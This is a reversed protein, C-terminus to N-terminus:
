PAVAAALDESWAGLLHFVLPLLPVLIAERAVVALFGQSRLAEDGLVIMVIADSAILLEKGGLAGLALLHNGSATHRVLIIGVMPVAESATVALLRQGSLSKGGLLFLRVAGVAESFEEGFLAELAVFGDGSKSAGLVDGELITMPVVLMEIALFARDREDSLAKQGVAIINQAGVASLRIKLPSTAGFCFDAASISVFFLSGSVFACAKLWHFFLFYIVIFLLLCYCRVVVICRLCCCFGGYM